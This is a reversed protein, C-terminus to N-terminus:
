LRRLNKKRNLIHKYLIRPEEKTPSYPELELCRRNPHVGNRCNICFNFRCNESSCVAFMNFSSFNETFSLQENANYKISKIIFDQNTIRGDFSDSHSIYKLDFSNQNLLGTPDSVAKSLIGKNNYVITDQLLHRKVKNSRNYRGTHTVVRSSKLCRPCLM